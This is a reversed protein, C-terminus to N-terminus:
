VSTFRKNAEEIQQIMREEQVRLKELELSGEKYTVKIEKIVDELKEIEKDIQELTSRVEETAANLTAQKLTIKVWMLYLSANRSYESPLRTEPAKDKRGPIIELEKALTTIDQELSEKQSEYQEETRDRTLRYTIVSKEKDRLLNDLVDLKKVLGEIKDHLPLCQQFLTFADFGKLESKLLRVVAAEKQAQEERNKMVERTREASNKPDIIADVTLILGKGEYRQDIYQQVRAETDKNRVCRGAAQPGSLIGNIVNIDSEIVPSNTNIIQVNLIDRISVGTAIVQDAVIHTRLGVEIQALQEDITSQPTSMDIAGSYNETAKLTVLNPQPAGAIVESVPQSAKVKAVMTEARDLILKTIAEKQATPLKSIPAGLKELAEKLTERNKTECSELKTLFPKPIEDNKTKYKAIHQDWEKLYDELKHTRDKEAIDTHKENFVLALAYSNIARQIDKQQETAIDQQLNVVPLGVTKRFEVEEVAGFKQVLQLRADCESKQRLKAVEGQYKEITERDGNAIKQYIEALKERTAKDDSFGMNRQCRIRNLALAQNIAREQAISDEIGSEAEIIQKKLEVPDVYGSMGEELYYDDFYHAVAQDTLSKENVYAVEDKIPRITGLEIAAGLSLDDLPNGTFLNYLESTPTATLALVSNRAKIGKLLEADEPKFTHRHSEDILVMSDKIENAIIKFLPHEAQLVIQDFPETGAIVKRFYAQIKLVDEEEIDSLDKELAEWLVDVKGKLTDLTFVRPTVKVGNVVGAGILDSTEKSQQNVLTQDPVIMVTRGVAQAIGAMVISKGSGTGMIALRQEKHDKLSDHFKSLIENQYAYPVFSKTDVALGKKTVARLDGDKDYTLKVTATHDHDFFLKGRSVESNLKSTINVTYNQTTSVTQDNGEFVLDITYVAGGITIAAELHPKGDGKDEWKTSEGPKGAKALIAKVVNGIKPDKKNNEIDISEKASGITVVAGNTVVEKLLHVAAVTDTYDKLDKIQQEVIERSAGM